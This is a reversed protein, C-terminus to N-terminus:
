CTETAFEFFFQRSPEWCLMLPGRLEFEKCPGKSRSGCAEIIYM